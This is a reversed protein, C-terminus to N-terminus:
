RPTKKQWLPLTVTFTSGKNPTSELRISGRHVETISKAISLGLGAGVSGRGETARSRSESGRWFRDFAHKTAEEDMGPGSDRVILTATNNAATVAIYMASEAPTHALANSVLVGVLQTLRTPDGTVYVSSSAESVIVERNPQVAHADMAADLAIQMLDVREHRIAPHEDLSSLTLLDQVMESMRTSEAALRRVVDELQDPERFAGQNYLELYGQISTLPTRLEHSADGIFQRLKQETADREDLMLNFAHGLKGAETAPNTISVRSSTEGATIADAAATVKAIPRLGLRHVWLGALVVVAAIVAGAVVFTQTVQTLTTDAEGLSQVSVIFHQHDGTDTVLVRYRDGSNSGTITSVMRNTDVSREPVLRRFDIDAPDLNGEVIPAVAGDATVLAIYFDSYPNETTDGSTPNQQPQDEGFRGPQPAVIAPLALLRADVQSILESELSRLVLIVTVIYTMGLVGVVLLLRARLTM